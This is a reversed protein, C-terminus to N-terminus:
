QSGVVQTEPVFRPDDIAGCMLKNDKDRGLRQLAHRPPISIRLAKFIHRAAEQSEIYGRFLQEDYSGSFDFDSPMEIPMAAGRNLVAEVFVSELLGQWITVYDGDKTLFHNIRLFNPIGDVSPHCQHEFVAVKGGLKFDRLEIFQFQAPDFPKETQMIVLKRRIKRPAVLFKLRRLSRMMAAAVNCKMGGPAAISAKKAM